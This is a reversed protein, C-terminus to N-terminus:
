KIIVTDPEHISMTGFSVSTMQYGYEVMYKIDFGLYQLVRFNEHQQRCEPGGLKYYEIIADAFNSSALMPDRTTKESILFFVHEERKRFAKIRATIVHIM